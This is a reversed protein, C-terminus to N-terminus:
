PLVVIDVFAATLGIVGFVAAVVMAWWKMAKSRFVKFGLALCVYQVAVCSLAVAGLPTM